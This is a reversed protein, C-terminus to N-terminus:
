EYIKKYRLVTFILIPTSICFTINYNKGAFSKKCVILNQLVTVIM